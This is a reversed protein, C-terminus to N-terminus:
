PAADTDADRAARAAALTARRELHIMVASAAFLFCYALITDM